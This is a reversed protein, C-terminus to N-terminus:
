WTADNERVAVTVSAKAIMVEQTQKLAYVEAEVFMLDTGPTLVKARCRLSDAVPTRLLSLKLEVRRPAKSGDTLTAAAAAATYESIGALVGGSIRDSGRFHSESVVDLRTECWGPGASGSTIGLQQAYADDAHFANTKSVFDLPKTDM